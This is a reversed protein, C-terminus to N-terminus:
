NEKMLTKYNNHLLRVEKILNIGLEKENHNQSHNLIASIEQNRNKSLKRSVYLLELSNQISINYKPISGFKNLLKLPIILINSHKYRYSYTLEFTV